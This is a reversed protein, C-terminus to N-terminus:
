RAAAARTRDPRRDWRSRREDRAPGPAPAAPRPAALSARAPRMPRTRVQPARPEPAASRPQRRRADPPAGRRRRHRGSTRLRIAIEGRYERSRHNQRAGIQGLKADGLAPRRRNGRNRRRHDSIGIQEASMAPQLLGGFSQPGNAADILRRRLIDGRSQQALGIRKGGGVDVDRAGEGIGIPPRGPM